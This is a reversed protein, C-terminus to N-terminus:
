SKPLIEGALYDFSCEAHEYSVLSSFCIQPFFLLKRIMKLSRALCKQSKPLKKKFYQAYIQKLRGNSNRSSYYNGWTKIEWCNWFIFFFNQGAVSKKDAFKDFSYEVHGASCKLFLVKLSFFDSKQFMELCQGLLIKRGAPWIKRHNESSCKVHGYSTKSSSCKKWNINKFLEPCQTLIKRKKEPIWWCPQWFHMRRTWLFTKLLYKEKLQFYKKLWKGRQTFLKQKRGWNWRCRQWFQM